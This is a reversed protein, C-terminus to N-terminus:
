ACAVGEKHGVVGEVSHGNMEANRPVKHILPPENGIEYFLFALEINKHRLKEKSFYAKRGLIQPSLSLSLHCTVGLLM